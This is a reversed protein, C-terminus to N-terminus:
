RIVKPIILTTEGRSETNLASVHQSSIFNPVNTQYRTRTSLKRLSLYIFSKRQLVLVMRRGNFANIPVNDRNPCEALLDLSREKTLKAVFTDSAKRGYISYIYIYIYSLFLNYRVM